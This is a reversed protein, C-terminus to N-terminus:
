HFHCCCCCNVRDAGVRKETSRNLPNIQKVSHTRLLTTTTTTTTSATTTAISVVFVLTCYNRNIEYSILSTVNVRFLAFCFMHKFSCKETNLWGQPITLWYISSSSVTHDDEQGICRGVTFLLAESRVEVLSLRTLEWYCNWGYNLFWEFLLSQSLKPPQPDFMNVGWGGDWRSM